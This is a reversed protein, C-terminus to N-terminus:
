FRVVRLACLLGARVDSLTVPNSLKTAVLTDLVPRDARSIDAAFFRSVKVAPLLRFSVETFTSPNNDSFVISKEPFVAIADRSRLASTPRSVKFTSVQLLKADNFTVPSVFSTDRAALLVLRAVKSKDPSELKVVTVALPLLLCVVIFKDPSAFSKVRVALLVFIVEKSKDPSVLKVDTVNFSLRRNAFKVTTPRSLRAVKLAIFEFRVEKSKDESELKVVTTTFPLWIKDANFSVPEVFRTVNVACSEPRTDSSRDPSAFNVVTFM